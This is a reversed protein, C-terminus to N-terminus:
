VVCYTKKLVANVLTNETPNSVETHMKKLAFGRGATFLLIAKKDSAAKINHKLGVRLTLL